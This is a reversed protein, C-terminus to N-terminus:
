AVSAAGRGFGFLCRGGSLVDLLAIEEAVRVPDHWPLVIVATGLTIRKTRGAFYSLLQTPSPSMAYGTFHHELAFLSDFGLPEALDGLALHEGLVAADSRGEKTLMNLAIGVKMSGERRHLGHPRRRGRDRHEYSYAIQPRDKALITIPRRGVRCWSFRSDDGRRRRGAVDIIKPIELGRWFQRPLKRAGANNGDLVGLLTTLPVSRRAGACMAPSTGDHNPPGDPRNQVVGSPPPLPPAPRRSRDLDRVRNSDPENLEVERGRVTKLELRRLDM